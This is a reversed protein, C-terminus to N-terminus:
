IIGIPNKQRVTAHIALGPCGERLIRMFIDLACAETQYHGADALLIQHAYTTYNHYKVDGTIYIDAGAKIADPIFEAGAGGCLAVRRVVLTSSDASYRLARVQFTDKVRRLYELAPTPETEGVIGLGTNAGECSPMLVRLHSLGLRRAMEYSVGNYTSDLSTHGSYISIGSRLAEAVIRQTPNAGVLSKLGSFILPHHSIILECGRERAEALVEETVDLCLLVANVDSEPNGVQLGSNDFGEQLELPAFTEIVQIIDKLKM